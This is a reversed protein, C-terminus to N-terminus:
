STYDGNIEVYKPTLDCGYVTHASEGEGVSVEIEVTDSKKIRASIDDLVDEHAQGDSFVCEGCWQIQLNKLSVDVDPTKGVAMVIRGWNPDAGYVATKVLPSNIISKGIRKAEDETRCHTVTVKLLHEAGEAGAAIQCALNVCVNKLAAAFADLDVKKRGSAMVVVTDSTSTDTDVSLSNFSVAVSSALMNRLEEAPVDADTFLYVLMTAMNPEIMGAGKAIGLISAEGVRECAVKPGKDTTMIAEAFSLYDDASLDSLDEMGRLIKEKPLQPGIVGTSSPLVDSPAIQLKRALKEMMELETNRGEEGTAVNAIGSTVMVAQLRGDSVADRGLPICEGCCSNTTFMAAAACPEDAVAVAFDKVGDKIGVNKGLFRFGEPVSVSGAM